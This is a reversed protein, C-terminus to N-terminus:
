KTGNSDIEITPYFVGGATADPDTTTFTAITGSFPTQDTASINSTSIAIPIPAAFVAVVATGPWAGDNGYVTTVTRPVKLQNWRRVRPWPVRGADHAHYALFCIVKPSAM